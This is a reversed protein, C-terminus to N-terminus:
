YCSDYKCESDYKCGSGCGACESPMCNGGTADDSTFDVCRLNGEEGECDSDDTCAVGCKNDSSSCATQSGTTVSVMAGWAGVAVLIRLAHIWTTKAKVNKAGSM